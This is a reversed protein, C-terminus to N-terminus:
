HERLASVFEDLQARAPLIPADNVLLSYAYTHESKGTVIGVLASTDTLTGTKARAYGRASLEAYRDDLTGDGGAVPLLDLLSRLDGVSGSDAAAADTTEAVDAGSGRAAVQLCQLLTAPTLRNDSSLGSNDRLAAGTVDVGIESLVQLTASTADAFTAPQKGRAIAIERGIAEAMVNDSHKIMLELRERLIPSKMVAVEPMPPAGDHIGVQTAGVRDALAQAVDFAPSTSRPVDGTTAGVRAGHLMAPEMPAIYGEAVNAPDWGEAQTPGDWLSTDIEVSDAQGIVAAAADLDADDLWVDGAARIVVRGGDQEIVTHLRKDLDMTALAATATLVKTSSAPVFQQQANHEYVLHQSNLDFVSAGVSGAIAPPQFGAAPSANGSADALAPDVPTVPLEAPALEYAPASEVESYAQHYAVGVTATAAVVVVAVVVSVWWFVKM